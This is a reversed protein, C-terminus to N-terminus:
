PEIQLTVTFHGVPTANPEWARRNELAVHAVGAGRADLRITRLGSSCANCPAEEVETVLLSPEVVVDTVYASPDFTVIVDGAAFV